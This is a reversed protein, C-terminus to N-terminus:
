SSQRLVGEKGAKWYKINGTKERVNRFSRESGEGASEDKEVPIRFLM